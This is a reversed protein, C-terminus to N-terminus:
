VAAETGDVSMIDTNSLLISVEQRYLRWTEQPFLVKRKQLFCSLRVNTLLLNKMGRTKSLGLELKLIKLIVDNTVLM